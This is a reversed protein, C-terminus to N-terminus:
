GKDPDPVIDGPRDEREQWWQSTGPEFTSPSSTEWRRLREEDKGQEKDTWSSPEPPEAGQDPRRRMM